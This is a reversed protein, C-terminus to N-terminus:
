NRSGGCSRPYPEKKGALMRKKAQEAIVDKLKLALRVRDVEGCHPHYLGMKVWKLGKCQVLAIVRTISQFSEPMVFIFRLM